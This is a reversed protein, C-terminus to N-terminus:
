QYESLLHSKAIEKIQSKSSQLVTHLHPFRPAIISNWLRPGLWAITRTGYIKRSFIEKFHRAVRGSRQSLQIPKFLESINPPAHQTIVNYLVVIAQQRAIDKVKLIKLKSHIPNTHALRPQNDLIRIMKKQLTQLKTIHTQTANGWVLCCYNLYPLVLANYLLYRHRLTLFFRSRNIIGINRSIISSIHTIHSEWTLKNDIFVGLYRVTEACDIEVGNLVVNIDVTLKSNNYIQYFTKSTNLSLKNARLWKCVKPLEKNLNNQLEAASRAEFLIATDDAYLLSTFKSSIKPFDNIYLIFLLPGLISGQPVGIDVQRLNSKVGKYEVCQHRDGLYSSLMELVTGTIGYSHLKLLLINHDVTDFAKKLDLYIGCNMKNSEFGRIVKDQLLLLPMYTSYGKRFGFQNPTLINNNTVHEMIRAHIIKEIIKSIYPLISIPRYNTFKERDGSKYIPKVIAIKLRNPFKGQDLCINIFHLLQNIISMYTLKFIRANVKDVGHGVNKMNQIIHILEDNTSHHFHNIPNTCPDGMLFLAEQPHGTMNQQLNKGITSFFSNFNEAIDSHDDILKGESNIFNNPYKHECVKGTTHSLMIEWMKRADNKCSELKEQLYKHKAKRILINLVNRYRVYKNVNHETPSKQKINYLKCRTAISALICPTIWPKIPTNKRNPRHEYSFKEIGSIYSTIIRDCATEPDTITQFGELSHQLHNKLDDIKHYNFRHQLEMRTGASTAAFNLISFIPFHDSTDDLIIGSKNVLTLSNSFINDILSHHLNQVRTSKSILPLFSSSALTNFFELPPGGSTISLLDINFDGCILAIKNKAQITDLASGLEEKFDNYCLNPPKYVQCILLSFNNKLQCEIFLSQTSAFLKPLKQSKKVIDNNLYVAVGGGTAHVRSDFYSTYGDLHRKDEMEKSLWTESVCIISWKCKTRFLFVEFDSFKEDSLISRANLHIITLLGSNSSTPCGGPAPVSHYKCNTRINEFAHHTQNIDAPGISPFPRLIHQDFLPPHDISEPLAM